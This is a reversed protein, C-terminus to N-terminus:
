ELIEKAEESDDTTSLCGSVTNLPSSTKEFPVESTSPMKDEGDTNSLVEGETNAVEDDDDDEEEKGSDSWVEFPTILM